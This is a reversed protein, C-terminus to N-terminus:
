APCATTAVNQFATARVNLEHKMNDYYDNWMKIQVSSKSMGFMEQIPDTDYELTNSPVAPCADVFLEWQLSRTDDPVDLHPTPFLWEFMGKMTTTTTM